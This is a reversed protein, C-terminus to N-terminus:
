AARHRVLGATAAILLVSLALPWGSIWGSINGPPARHPDPM